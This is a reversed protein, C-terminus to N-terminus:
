TSGAGLPAQYCRDKRSVGFDTTFMGRASVPPLTNGLSTLAFISPSSLRETVTLCSSFAPHPPPCMKGKADKPAATPVRTGLAWTWLRGHPYLARHPAVGTALMAEWTTLAARESSGQEEEQMGSGQCRCSKKQDELQQFPLGSPQCM